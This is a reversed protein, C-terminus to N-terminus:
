GPVPVTVRVTTGSGTSSIELRGGILSTREKMSSIGVGAPFGTTSGTEPWQEADERGIDTIEVTVVDLSRDLVVRAMQRGSHKHINTLSEQVVIFLALEVEKNLRGFRPSVQLEVRIGSRESFGNLFHRIADPLGAEELMPPHLLYSLTRVERICQEALHQCASAFARLKRASPPLSNQLLSLNTKLVVLNQGTSDHLDRAIKRREEDQLRLLKASLQMVTDEAVKRDTIDNIVCVARDIGKPGEIPFYSLFLDRDGLNPYGYRTEYRVVKGEFCQDLKPKVIRDYTEKGLIEVVTRGLVQDRELGRYNLFARNALQFRYERDVVVISEELGEMAKEYEQLRITAWRQETIDQGSSLTGIVQGTGDRLLSNRWAILREEGSKTLILNELYSLDGRVLKRFSSRLEGRLREPACFDVWDRGLFDSEKRGLVECGKRNILTVRGDLDLALLIVDAINLYQHTLDREEQIRAFMKKRETIDTAFVAVGEPVPYLRNEWWTDSAEDYSNFISPLRNEMTRRYNREVEPTHAEPYFEWLIKGLVEQRPRGMLRIASENAYLYHWERDLLIHVDAVSNLVSETRHYALQLEEEARKHSTIDRASGALRFLRGTSDFIPFGRCEVWLVSGNPRVIRCEFGQVPIGSRLDDLLAKVRERDDVHIGDLFSLPQSYLDDRSRGWLEQYTRNVYLVETVGANTLIIAERLQDAVQEFRAGTELVQELESSPRDVMSTLIAAAQAVLTGIVIASVGLSPIGVARFLEPNASSPYFIVSMAGAYHVLSIVGGMLIASLIRTPVTMRSKESYASTFVVVAFSGVVAITISLGVFMPRYRCVAAVRMANMGIYYMGAIAFGMAVSAAVDRAHGKTGQSMLYLAIASGLTAVLLSLLVTPLHYAVVVPLQFALMGTFHVSWIGLGMAASALILWRSRAWGRAATVRGCLDLAAFSTSIAIFVSLAVLRPEYQGPLPIGIQGM